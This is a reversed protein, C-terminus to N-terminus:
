SKQKKESKMFIYSASIGIIGGILGFTFMLIIVLIADMQLFNPTYGILVRFLSGGFFHSMNALGGWVGGVMIGYSSRLTSVPLTDILFGILTYHVVAMGIGGAVGMSGMIYGSMLGITTTSGFGGFLRRDSLIKPIIFLPIILVGDHGPLHLGPTRTLIKFMAILVSFTLIIIAQRFITEPAISFYERTKEEVVPLTEERPSELEKEYELKEM